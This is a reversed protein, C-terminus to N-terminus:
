APAREVSVQRACDAVRSVFERTREALADGAQLLSGGILLMVDLGYFRIMEDVRDINMGGAPVPMAAPMADWASRASAAIAACESSTYAFRGGYNPFIVADAGLLRFLKGLLFSSAVRTAGAYAPHALVPVHLPGAVLEHFVPMGILAPAILVAGVGEEHILRAQAALASPSGVMSPAYVVNRGTERNARQVARQCARVREAFPAYTQDALGHDDKILDVGGLAFTYCLQALAEIPLGQPKLAGCTLPRDAVGTLRRLGAIGYRPGAFRSAFGSPFTADLLEVHAHLSSNGFLMNLMQATEFGTTEAALALTVEYADEGTPRITEVRALIEDRVFGDRMAVDRPTEVSQELALAEAAAEIEPAAARVRYTAHIRSM